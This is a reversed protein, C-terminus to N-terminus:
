RTMQATSAAFVAHSLTLTKHLGSLRLFSLEEAGCGSIGLWLEVSRVVEAVDWVLLGLRASSVRGTSVATMFQVLSQAAAALFLSRWAPVLRGAAGLSKRLASLGRLLSRVGLSVEEESRKEWEYESPQSALHWSGSHFAAFRELEAGLVAELGEAVPSARLEVLRERDM